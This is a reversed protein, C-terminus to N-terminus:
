VRIVKKVNFNIKLFIFLSIKRSLMKLKANKISASRYAIINELEVFNSFKLCLIFGSRIYLKKFFFLM